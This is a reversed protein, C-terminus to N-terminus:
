LSIKKPCKLYPRIQERALIKHPVKYKACIKNLFKEPLVKKSKIGLTWFIRASTKRVPKNAGKKQEWSILSKFNELLLLVIIFKEFLYIM